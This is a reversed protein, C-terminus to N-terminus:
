LSALLEVAEGRTAFTMDVALLEELIERAEDTAGAEALTAALHYAINGNQPMLERAERLHRVAAPLDGLDRYIWGLTDAISGSQPRLERAKEAHLRAQELNGAYQLEVALNNLIVPDDPFEDALEKYTQRAPKRKGQQQYVEALVKRANTDNDNAAIWDVLPLEPEEDTGRAIRMQVERVVGNIGAGNREADGFAAIAEDYKGGAAFAEGRALAVSVDTPYSQALAEARQQADDVRGTSILALVQLVRPRVDTPDATVARDIIVLADASKGQAMLVRTLDLLLPVAEPSREVAAEFQEEAKDLASAAFFVRGVSRVVGVDRLDSDAISEAVAVVDLPRGEDLYQNALILAPGTEGPHNEYARELLELARANDGAELAVQALGLSAMLNKSDADFVAQFNESAAEHQSERLELRGLLLRAQLNRPALGVAHELADRGVDFMQQSLYFRAALLLAAIDDRNAAVLDAAVTAAADNDGLDRHATMLVRERAFPAETSAPYRALLEVASQPVGTRVYGEALQVVAQINEPDAEAAAQLREIALNSRGRQMDAIALLGLLETDDGIESQLPELM